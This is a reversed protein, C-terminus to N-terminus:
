DVQFCYIKKDFGCETIQSETWEKNWNGVSGIQAKSSPDTTTWGNCTNGESFTGDQLTGTWVFEPTLISEVGAASVDIWNVLFDTTLGKWGRALKKPPDTPLLYWGKYDTSAFRFLPSDFQFEDSVWAKYIGDLKARDANEQCIADAELVGGFNSPVSEFSQFAFRTSFCHDDCSDEIILNGDDCEESFDLIGNSCLTEESTERSTESTEPFDSNSSTESSKSSNETDSTETIPPNGSTTVQQEVTTESQSNSGASSSSVGSSTEGTITDGTNPPCAMLILGTCGIIINKVKNKMYKESKLVIFELKLVEAYRHM